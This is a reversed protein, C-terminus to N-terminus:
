PETLEVEALGALARRCADRAVDPGHGRRLLFGYLRRYATEPPLGAMRSVRSAALAVARERDDGLDEVVVEALGTAVGARALASRVARNGDRRGSRARALERAFREDDVLGARELDDLATTIQEDEFGAMRLRTELERRSRWRVALLGLARDKATGRPSSGSRGAPTQPLARQPGIL